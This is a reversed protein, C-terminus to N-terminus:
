IVPTKGACAPILRPCRSDRRRVRRKGRVRPSSGRMRASQTSDNRNEGCVRPHASRTGRVVLPCSTKGACAPILRGRRRRRAPGRPKGRVRPSSGLRWCMGALRLRNEGCVRPHAPTGVQNPVRLATKGACAPILRGREGVEHEGRPKGRVRPSSGDATNIWDLLGGNEGCVRPHATPPAPPSQPGTTKGACAPILRQHRRQRRRVGRKGRVRPSSGVAEISGSSQEMNEGCVRPHAWTPSPGPAPSRTKGACAPILGFTLARSRPEVRKGRVRPSSGTSKATGKTSVLNEGCVRPHARLHTGSKSARSTKGACAPILGAIRVTRTTESPKGRVRPSSGRSRISRPPRPINEGCVRPHARSSPPSRTRWPTKGACAPILRM